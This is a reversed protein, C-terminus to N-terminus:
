ALAFRRLTQWPLLSAFEDSHPKGLLEALQTLANVCSFNLHMDAKAVRVKAPCGRIRVM